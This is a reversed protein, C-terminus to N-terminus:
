NIVSNDILIFSYKKLMSTMYVKVYSSIYVRVREILKYFQEITTIIKYTGERRPTLEPYESSIRIRRLDEITFGEYEPRRRIVLPHYIPIVKCNYKESWIETGRTNNITVVRDLVRKVALTGMPVIINPKIAEIEKDLYPACADIEAKDPKRIRVPPPAKPICRVTSTLFVDYSSIKAKGLMRFLEKAIPGESIDGTRDEPSGPWESVFLIKAKLSGKGNVVNKRGYCLGCQKCADNELNVSEVNQM